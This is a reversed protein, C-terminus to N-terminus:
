KATSLMRKVWASGGRRRLLSREQLTLNVRVRVHERKTAERQVKPGVQGRRRGDVIGKVGSKSLRWKRALASLSLGSERDALMAEIEADSLVARHHSEGIRRGNENVRVLTRDM